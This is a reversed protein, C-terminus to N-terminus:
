YMGGCGFNVGTFTFAAGLKMLLKMCQWIGCINVDAVGIVTLQRDDELVNALDCVLLIKLSIM